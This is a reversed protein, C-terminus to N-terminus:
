KSLLTEEDHVEIELVAGYMNQTTSDVPKNSRVGITYCLRACFDVFHCCVALGWM